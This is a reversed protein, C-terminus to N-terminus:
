NDMSFGDFPDKGWRESLVPRNAPVAAEMAQAYELEAKVANDHQIDSLIENTEMQTQLQMIQMEKDGMKEKEPLGADANIKETMAARAEARANSEENIIELKTMIEEGLEEERAQWVKIYTYNEPTLGTKTWIEKRERESLSNEWIEKDFYGEKVAKPMDAIQTLKYSETGIKVDIANFKNEAQRELYLQRNFWNMYSDYDRVDGIRSLISHKRFKLKSLVEM